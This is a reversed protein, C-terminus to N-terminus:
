LIIYLAGHSTQSWMTFAGSVQVALQECVINTGTMKLSGDRNSPLIEMALLQQGTVGSLIVMMLWGIQRFLRSRV